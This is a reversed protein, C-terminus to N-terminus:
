GDPGRGYTSAWGHLFKLLKKLFNESAEKETGSYEGFIDKGRDDETSHKKYQALVLLSPLIIKQAFSLFKTNGTMM